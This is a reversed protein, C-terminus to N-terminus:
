NQNVPSRQRMQVSNNEGLKQQRGQYPDPRNYCTVSGLTNYCYINQQIIPEDEECYHQGKELRVASCNKGSSLSVVHDVVTKDTGMVTLLDVQAVGPVGASVLPGCAGLMCVSLLSLITRM